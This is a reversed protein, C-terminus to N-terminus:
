IVGSFNTSCSSSSSASWSDSGSLSASLSLSAMSAAALQSNIQAASELRQLELQSATRVNELARTINAIENAVITKAKELEKDFGLARLRAATEENQLEALYGEIQARHASVASEVRRTDANVGASWADVQSSYIDAQARVVDNLSRTRTAEAEIRSAYGQVRARYADVQTGYARARAEEGRVEAEFVNVREAVGRIEAGYAEVKARFAEVKSLEADIKGRYGQVRATYINVLAEQAQIQRTYIEVKQQNIDAELRITELQTRYADLKALEVRIQAEYVNIQAQYARINLEYIAVYANYIGRMVEFHEFALRRANEDLQLFINMLQGEYQVARDIVYRMNEIAQQHVQVTLERNLRGAEIQRTRRAELISAQVAAGPLEHGREVWREEAERESQLQDERLRERGADFIEQQVDTPLGTNQTNIAEIVRAFAPRLEVLGTDTHAFEHIKTDLEGTKANHDAFYIDQLEDQPPAFDPIEPITPLNFEPIEGIDSLAQLEPASPFTLTPEEPAGELELVPAPGPADPYNLVPPAPMRSDFDGFDPRPVDGVGRIGSGDDLGSLAPETPPATNFLADPLDFVPRNQADVTLDPVAVADIVSTDVVWDLSAFDPTFGQLADIDVAADNSLNRVRDVYAAYEKSVFEYAGAGPIFLTCPSVAM